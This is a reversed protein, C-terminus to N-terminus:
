VAWKKMYEQIAKDMFEQMSIGKAVCFLKLNTHDQKDLRYPIAKIKENSM